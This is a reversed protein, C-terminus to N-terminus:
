RFDRCWEPPVVVRTIDKARMYLFQSGVQIRTREQKPSRMFIGTIQTYGEGDTAVTGSQKRISWKMQQSSIPKLDTAVLASGTVENQERCQIRMHLSIVYAVHCDHSNSFGYGAECSNFAHEAYGLQAAPRELGQDRVLGMVDITTQSGDSVVTPPPVMPAPTEVAPPKSACAALLCSLISITALSRFTVHSM